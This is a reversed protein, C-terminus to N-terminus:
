MPVEVNFNNDYGQSGYQNLKFLLQSEYQCDGTPVRHEYAIKLLHDGVWQETAVYVRDKYLEFQEDDNLIIRYKTTM